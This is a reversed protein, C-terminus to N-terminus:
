VIMRMLRGASRTPVNTKSVSSESQSPWGFVQEHNAHAGSQSWMSHRLNGSRCSMTCIATIPRHKVTRVTLLRHVMAPDRVNKMNLQSMKRKTEKPRQPSCVKCSMIAAVCSTRSCRRTIEPRFSIHTKGMLKSVTVYMKVYNKILNLDAKRM